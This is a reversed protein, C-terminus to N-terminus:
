YRGRGRRAGRGFWQDNYQQRAPKPTERYTCQCFGEGLIRRRLDLSLFGWISNMAEIVPWDEAQLLHGNDKLISLIRERPSLEVYSKVVVKNNDKKPIKTKDGRKKTKLKRKHKNLLSELAAIRALEEREDGSSLEIIDKEKKVVVEGGPPFSGGSKKVSQGKVAQVLPEEDSSASSSSSSESLRNNAQKM